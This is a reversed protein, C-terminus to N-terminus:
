YNFWIELKLRPTLHLILRRICMYNGNLLDLDANPSSQWMSLVQSVIQM